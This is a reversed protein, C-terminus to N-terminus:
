RKKRGRPAEADAPDSSEADSLVLMPTGDLGKPMKEAERREMAQLALKDSPKGLEIRRAEYLRRVKEAPVDGVPFEEGALYRKRQFIFDRRAHAGHTPDYAAHLNTSPM